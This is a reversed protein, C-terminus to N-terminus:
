VFVSACGASSDEAVLDALGHDVARNAETACAQMNLIEQSKLRAVNDAEILLGLCVKVEKHAVNWLEFSFGCKLAFLKYEGDVVFDLSLM